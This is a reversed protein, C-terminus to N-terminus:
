NKFGGNLGRVYDIAGQRDEDFNELLYDVLEEANSHEDTVIKCPTSTGGPCSVVGPSAQYSGNSTIAEWTLSSPIYKFTTTVKGKEIKVEKKSFDSTGFALGVAAIVAIIPIILKKTMISLKKQNYFSKLDARLGIKLSRQM